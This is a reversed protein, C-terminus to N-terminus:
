QADGGARGCQAGARLWATIRELTDPDFDGAYIRRFTQVRLETPDTIGQARLSSEVIRKAADWMATAMRLREEGTRSMLIRRQIAEAQPTTDHSAAM